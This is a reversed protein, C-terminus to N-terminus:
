REAAFVTDGTRLVVASGAYCAYFGRMGGRLFRLGETVTEGSREDDDLRLAFRTFEICPEAVIVSELRVLNGDGTRIALGAAATAADIVAASRVIVNEGASGLTLHTGFRETMAADHATFGISIANM